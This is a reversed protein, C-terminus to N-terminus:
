FASDLTGQIFTCWKGLSQGYLHIAGASIQELYYYYYLPELISQSRLPTPWETIHM